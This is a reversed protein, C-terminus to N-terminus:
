TSAELGHPKLRSLSSIGSPQLLMIVPFFFVFCFLAPRVEQMAEGGSGKLWSYHELSSVTKGSNLFLQFTEQHQVLFGSTNGRPAFGSM